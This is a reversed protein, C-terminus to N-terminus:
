LRLYFSLESTKNPCMFFQKNHPMSGTKFVPEDFFGKWKLEGVVCNSPTLSISSNQRKENHRNYKAQMFTLLKNLWIVHHSFLMSCNNVNLVVFCTDYPTVEFVEQFKM